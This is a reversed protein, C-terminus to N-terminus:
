ELGTYETIFMHDTFVRGFDELQSSEPKKKKTNSLKVEIMKVTM